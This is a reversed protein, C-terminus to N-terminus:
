KRDAVVCRFGLHNLSTDPCTKMRASIRYGKCYSDHCLFSGGRHVHKKAYPEDPDFSTESGKPNISIEKKAEEQYYSIHYLDLCWQWVNGSMDYLGYPNPNFSKVSTTGFYGNPKTSKYPFAGQWINTQPNEESFNENGWVYLVDQKGGKAAFEWEAETPLRKGAWKAYEVADFWSVQVVPHDEKGEISSQPGLPHKWNAGEKWEWWARNSNLPVPGSTPKFVLSAAVLLEKPPPKTGPPVQAMIEELTPAKEATTVYGTADVFAKFQRNTVPTADMWFADVRVRHPPKEDKKSDQNDSGMTFEGGPIWVMGEPNSQDMTFRKPLNSCCCDSWIQNMSFLLLFSFFHFLFSTNMFVLAKLM